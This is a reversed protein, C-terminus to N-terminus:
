NLMLEENKEIMNLFERFEEREREIVERNRSDLAEEFRVLYKEVKLRTDGLTEEYLSEGKFLLQKNEEEERPSIKLYQLSKLREEIEEDSMDTSDRKLVIRKKDNTSNVKVEVELISNIDYTYTVDVSEEGAKNVPVDIFVEGLFM